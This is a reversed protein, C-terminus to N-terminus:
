EQNSIKLLKLTAVLLMADSFTESNTNGETKILKARQFLIYVNTQM